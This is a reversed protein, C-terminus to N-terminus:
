SRRRALLYGVYALPIYTLLSLIVFWMPQGPRMYFFNLIGGVTLIVGVIVAFAPNDRVQSVKTAMWGGGFSGIIYGIWTAIYVGAPLSAMYQAIEASSMHSMNGPPNQALGTALMEVLLFIAAATFWGAVVGLIKRGM